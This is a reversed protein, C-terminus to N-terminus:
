PLLKWTTGNWIWTQSVPGSPGSHALKNIVGQVAYVIVTQTADDYAASEYLATPAGQSAVKIWTTGNWAWTDGVMLQGGSVSMGGFLLPQRTANDYVLLPNQRETPTSAPHQQRWTTGNWTWTESSIGDTTIGGYLVIEQQATDYAMAAGTRPSPSVVLRQRQWTSGDWTWTTNVMTGVHGFPAEGGFLVIQGRAADYAMSAGLVEPITAPHLQQWTNGDWAWMENAVRGNQVQNLFLVIQGRAVDYVMRGPLPPPSSAPHLQKWTHGDWAWTENTVAGGPVQETGGFLLVLHHAAEYAMASDTRPPEVQALSAAQTTAPASSASQQGSHFQRVLVVWALVIFLVTLFALFTVFLNRRKGPRPQNIKPSPIRTSTDPEDTIRSRKGM